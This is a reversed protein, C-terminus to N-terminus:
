CSLVRTDEAKQEGCNKAKENLFQLERPSTLKFEHRLLPHELWGLNPRIFMGLKVERVPIKKSSM